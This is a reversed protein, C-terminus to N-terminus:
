RWFLHSGKPLSPTHNWFFARDYFTKWMSPLYCGKIEGGFVIIDATRVKNNYFDRFGDNYQCEYNYGCRMCGICAGRIDIDTLSLLEIKDSFSDRFRDIMKGLNTSPDYRDTLLLVKQNQTSIKESESTPKYEIENYILKNFLRSTFRKNKIASFFDEIFNKLASMDDKNRISLIDASFSDVFYMSLDECVGRIYNHATHDYFHISSTIVATYKEKFWLQLNKEWILEILRM